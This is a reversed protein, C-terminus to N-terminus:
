DPDCRGNSLRAVRGTPSVASVMAGVAFVYCWALSEQPMDPLALQLVRLTQRAIPDYYATSVKRAYPLPENAVRALLLAFNGGGSVKDRCLLVTPELFARLVDELKVRGKGARMEVEDLQSLRRGNISMIRREMVAGFLVEKTKFHYQALSISVGAAEAIQRMSVGHYGMEAFAHEAADLVQLRYNARAVGADKSPKEITRTM